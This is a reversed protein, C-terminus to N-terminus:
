GFIDKIQAPTYGHQEALDKFDELTNITVFLELEDEKFHPYISLIFDRVKDKKKRGKPVKVFPHNTKKGRGVATLSLWCLEPHDKVSISKYGENVALQTVALFWDAEAGQGSSMSRMLMYYKSQFDKKQDDTMRAYHDRRKRDAADLYFSFPIKEKAATKKTM